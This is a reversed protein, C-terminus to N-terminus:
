RGSKREQEIRLKDRLISFVDRALKDVDVDGEKEGAEDPDPENATMEAPAEPARSIFDSLPMHNVQPLNQQQYGDAAPPTFADRENAETWTPDSTQARPQQPFDRETRRRLVEAGQVPTDPPLGLLALLGAQPNEDMVEVPEEPSLSEANGKFQGTQPRRPQPIDMSQQANQGVAKPQIMAPPKQQRSNTTQSTDAAAVADDFDPEAWGSSVMAEYLDVPQEAEEAEWPAFDAEPIFFDEQSTDPVPEIPTEQQIPRRRLISWRAPSQNVNTEAGRRIDTQQPYEQQQKPLNEVPEDVMQRQIIGPNDAGDEDNAGDPWEGLTAPNSTPWYLSKDPEGMLATDGVTDEDSVPLPTNNLHRNATPSQEQPQPFATQNSRVTTDHHQNAAQQNEPAAKRAIQNEIAGREPIFASETEGKDTAPNGHPMLPPETEFHDPQWAQREDDFDFINNEPPNEQPPFNQPPVPRTERMSRQPEAIPQETNAPREEGGQDVTKRQISASDRQVTQDHRIVQLPRTDESGDDFWTVRAAPPVFDQEDVSYNEEAIFDEFDPSAFNEPTSFSADDKPAFIPAAFDNPEPAAPQPTPIEEVVSSRRRRPPIRPNVDSGAHEPAPRNASQPPAAQRQVLPTGRQISSDRRESQRLQESQERDFISPRESEGESERRAAHGAIIAALDPPTPREEADDEFDSDMFPAGNGSPLKWVLPREADEQWAPPVTNEEAKAERSYRQIKDRSFRSLRMGLSQFPKRPPLDNM